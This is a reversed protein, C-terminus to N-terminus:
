RVLRAILLAIGAWVGASVAAMLALGLVANWNFRGPTRSREISSDYVLWSRLFKVDELDAVPSDWKTRIPLSFQPQRTPSVRGTSM